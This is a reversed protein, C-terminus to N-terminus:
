FFFHSIILQTWCVHLHERINELRGRDRGVCGPQHSSSPITTATTLTRTAGHPSVRARGSRPCRAGGATAGRGQPSREGAAERRTRRGMRSVAAGRRVRQRPRLQQAAPPTARRSQLPPRHVTSSQLSQLVQLSTIRKFRSSLPWSNTQLVSKYNHVHDSYKFAINTSMNGKKEKKM